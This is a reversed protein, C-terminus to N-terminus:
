AAAVFQLSGGYDPAIAKIPYDYAFTIGLSITNARDIGEVAVSTVVMDNILEVTWGKL